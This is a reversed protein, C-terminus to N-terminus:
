DDLISNIQNDRWEALPIFNDISFIIGIYNTESEVHWFSRTGDLKVEELFYITGKFCTKDIGKQTEGVCKYDNICIYKEDM